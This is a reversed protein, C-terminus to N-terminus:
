TYHKSQCITTTLNGESDCVTPGNPEFTENCDPQCQQGAVLSDGCTGM